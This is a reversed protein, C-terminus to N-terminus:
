IRSKCVFPLILSENEELFRIQWCGIEKIANEAQTRFDKVIFQRSAYKSQMAKRIQQMREITGVNCLRDQQSIYYFNLMEEPCETRGPWDFQTLQGARFVIRIGTWIQLGIRKWRDTHNRIYPQFHDVVYQNFRTHEETNNFVIMESNRNLCIRQTDNFTRAEHFFEHRFGDLIETTSFTPEPDKIFFYGKGIYLTVGTMVVVLAVLLAIWFGCIWKEREDHINFEPEEPMEIVTEQQHDETESGSNEAYDDDESGSKEPEDEAYDIDDNNDM